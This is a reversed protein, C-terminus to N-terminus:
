PRLQPPRADKFHHGQNFDKRVGNIELGPNAYRPPRRTHQWLCSEGFGFKKPLDLDKGLQLEFMRPFIERISFSPQM